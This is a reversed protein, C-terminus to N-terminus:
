ELVRRRRKFPAPPQLVRKPAAMNCDCTKVPQKLLAQVAEDLRKDTTNCIGPCVAAPPAPADRSAVCPATGAGAAACAAAAAAKRAEADVQAAVLRRLFVIWQVAKVQSRAHELTFPYKEFNARYHRKCKVCPLGAAAHKFFDVIEQAEESTLTDSAQAAATFLSYWVHLTWEAKPPRASSPVVWDIQAANRTSM